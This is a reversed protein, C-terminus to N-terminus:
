SDAMVYFKHNFRKLCDEICKTSIQSIGLMVIGDVTEIPVTQLLGEDRNKITIRNKESGIECGLKTVYIYSM